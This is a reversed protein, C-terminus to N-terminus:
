LVDRGIMDDVTHRAVALSSTWAPSVSNLLHTSGAAAHLVFDMELRRQETDFLQARIGVQGRTRFACEALGPVLTAAERVLNGRWYKPVETRVLGRLDHHPSRALGLLGLAIHPLDRPSLGSLGRYNERGLAPIATPGVKVAGDVTVTAHVGLFPNRADPVPYVQRRLYGAPVQAHWYLGKFPLMVYPGRADFWHAVQDAYLGAANVVHGVHYTALTTRVWGPAAATVREGLHIRVGRRAADESMATLVELPSAVSTTPSWLARQVTRARPELETLGAEDVVHVEVGNARARRELEDLASLQEAATTVVVKGTRRVRVSHEDLFDHLLRSGDRTLQAKLSDPAYYFGAHLVGSNRGSAHAGLVREKDLVLVSCGPRRLAVERAVAMGVIGGGIVAVDVHQPAVM